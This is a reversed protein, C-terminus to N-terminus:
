KGGAIVSKGKGTIRYKQLRSNPKDPVTMEIIGAEVSPKIYRERFHKEDKLGLKQQIEKRTMEGKIILLMKKVEPTVYPTVEPTYMGRVAESIMRLMFEIFFTSDSNKTSEKIANYYEGQYKYVINEVPVNVFVPNWKYLILTQWLRGIRGNGDDFPHIFEFEYHFVAGAVLPHHDTKKLWLLLDKMLVPVRGAPPAPHVLREGAVVGVGGKRYSGPNDLLGEMLIGHAALLDDELYPLWKDIYDYARIANKVERIERVPATIKKGELIATIQEESLTNGEISLSGKITKIRNVKRLRLNDASDTFASIRGIMESIESILSIVAPTITFPPIYEPM